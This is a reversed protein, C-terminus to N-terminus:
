VIEISKESGKEVMWCLDICFDGDLLDENSTAGEM